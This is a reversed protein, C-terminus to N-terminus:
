MTDDHYWTSNLVNSILTLELRENSHNPIVQASIYFFKEACRFQETM